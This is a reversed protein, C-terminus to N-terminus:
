RSAARPEKTDHGAPADADHGNASNLLDEIESIRALATLQQPLSVFDVSQKQERARRLWEILLALGASDSETVAHLDIELRQNGAFKLESQRLIETVTALVLPGSVRFRGQGLSELRAEIM